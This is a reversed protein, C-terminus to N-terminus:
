VTNYHQISGPTRQQVAYVYARPNPTTARPRQEEPPGYTMRIGFRSPRGSPTLAPTSCLIPLHHPGMRAYMEKNHHQQRLALQVLQYIRASQADCINKKNQEYFRRNLHTKLSLDCAKRNMMLAEHTMKQIIHRNRIRSIAAIFAKKTPISSINKSYKRPFNFKRRAFSKKREEQTYNKNGKGMRMSVYQEIADHLKRQNLLSGIDDISELCQVFATQYTAPIHNVMKAILQKRDEKILFEIFKYPFGQEVKINDKKNTLKKKM